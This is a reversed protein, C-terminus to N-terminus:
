GAVPNSFTAVIPVRVLCRAADPMAPFPSASRLADVARGVADVSRSSVVVRAGEAACARAIALGLGRTSGTIVIVKDQLSAM